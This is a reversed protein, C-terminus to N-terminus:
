AAFIDTYIFLFVLLYFIFHGMEMVVYHPSQRASHAASCQSWIWCVRNEKKGEVNSQETRGGRLIQRQKVGTYSTM